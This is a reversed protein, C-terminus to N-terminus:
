LVIRRPVIVVNVPSIKIKPMEVRMPALDFKLAPLALPTIKMKPAQIVMPALAMRPVAIATPTIKMRPTPIVMPTLAMKPVAIATPAFKMRPVQIVMPAIATGAVFDARDDPALLWSTTGKELQVKVTQEQKDRMIRFEIVGESKGTLARRIDLPNEVTEGGASLIVDGAKLGAKAAPSDAFVFIVLAGSRKSLGFYEALQPTMGQMEVGLHGRDQVRPRIQIDPRVRLSAISPRAISVRNLLAKREGLTVSVEIERGDRMVTMRVARGAPTERIHRSMERASEIPEGDWKVIVDNKQLGAQAASSGSTVEEILAGREERLKLRGVTEKSVESLEVGLFSPLEVRRPREPTQQDYDYRLSAM